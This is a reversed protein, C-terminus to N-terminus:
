LKFKSFCCRKAIEFSFQELPSVEITLSRVLSVADKLAATEESKIQGSIKIKM